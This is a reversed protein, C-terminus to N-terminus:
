LGVGKGFASHVLRLEEVSVRVQTSYPNLSATWVPHPVSDADMRFFAISTGTKLYRFGNKEVCNPPGRSTIFGYNDCTHTFKLENTAEAIEHFLRYRGRDGTDGSAIFGVAMIFAVLVIVAPPETYIM